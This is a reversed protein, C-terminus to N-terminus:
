LSPKQRRECRLADTNKDCVLHVRNEKPTDTQECLADTVLVEPYKVELLLGPPATGYALGRALCMSNCTDTRRTSVTSGDAIRYNSGVIRGKSRLAEGKRSKTLRLTGLNWAAVLNM